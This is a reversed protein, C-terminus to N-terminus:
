NKTLRRFEEYPKLRPLQVAVTKRSATRDVVAAGGPLDLAAVPRVLAYRSIIDFNSLLNNVISLLRSM